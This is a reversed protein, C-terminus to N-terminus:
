MVIYVCITTEAPEGYQWLQYGSAVHRWM